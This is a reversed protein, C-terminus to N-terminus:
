VLPLIEVIDGIRDAGLTLDTRRGYLTQPQSMWFVGMMEGHPTVELFVKPASKYALGAESLVRGLPVQEGLIRARVAATFGDLRIRVAGMAVPRGTREVVLLVHRFYSHGRSFTSLVRVSLAGAFYRELTATMESEHVLLQHYPPPIREPKTVKVLPAAIGARSYLVDLPYLINAANRRVAKRSVRQARSIPM